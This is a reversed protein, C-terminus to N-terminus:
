SVDDLFYIAQPTDTSWSRTTTVYGLANVVHVGPVAYWNGDRDDGSGVVTWVQNSPRLRTDEFRLLDGDDAVQAGWISHFESESIENMEDTHFARIAHVSVFDSSVQGSWHDSGPLRWDASPSRSLGRLIM